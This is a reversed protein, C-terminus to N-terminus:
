LNAIVAIRSGEPSLDVSASEIVNHVADVQSWLTAIGVDGAANVVVRARACGGIGL